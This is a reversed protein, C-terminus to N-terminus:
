MQPVVPEPPAARSVLDTVVPGLATPDWRDEQHVFPGRRFGEIVGIRGGMVEFVRGTVGASEASGLWVVLPAVNEPDSWHWLHEDRDAGLGLPITMRTRAAPAIANATVGYRSLEKAAVLTFGIIGAKAAAYNAQGPNGFLGSGSSTSIIRADLKEGAKAQDRWYQAAVHSPQYTGKLHGYMVADWEEESMNALVRDRLMGANNVLVDLRGFADIATQILNRAGRGDAVDDTNAVAEAGMARLEAAVEEAPAVSSGTGDVEGGFDNVVVKAGQAAFEVAHGRGIGRGAGTVIVVRGDCVGAM